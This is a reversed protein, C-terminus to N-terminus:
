RALTSRPRGEDPIFSELLKVLGDVDGELEDAGRALLEDGSKVILWQRPGGVMPQGWKDLPHSVNKIMFGPLAEVIVQFGESKLLFTHDVTLEGFDYRRVRISGPQAELELSSYYQPPVSGANRGYKIYDIEDAVANGTMLLALVYFGYRPIYQSAGTRSNEFLKM